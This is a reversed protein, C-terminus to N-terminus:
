HAIKFLVVDIEKEMSTTPVFKATLDSDTVRFRDSEADEFRIHEAQRNKNVIGSWLSM